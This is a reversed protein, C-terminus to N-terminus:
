AVNHITRNILDFRKNYFFCGKDFKCEIWMTKPSKGLKQIYVDSYKTSGANRDM